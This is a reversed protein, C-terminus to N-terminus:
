ASHSGASFVCGRMICVLFSPSPLLLAKGRSCGPKDGEPQARGLPGGSKGRGPEGAGVVAWASAGERGAEGAPGSDWLCGEIGLECGVGLGYCTSQRHNSFSQILVLRGNGRHSAVSSRTRLVERGGPLGRHHGEQGWARPAGTSMGPECTQRGQLSGPERSYRRACLLHKTSM